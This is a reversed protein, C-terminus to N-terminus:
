PRNWLLAHKSLVGAEWVRIVLLPLLKGERTKAQLLYAEVKDVQSCNEEEAKCEQPSYEVSAVQGNQKPKTLDITKDIASVVLQVKGNENSRINVMQIKSTQDPILIQYTGVIEKLNLDNNKSQAFVLSTALLGFLILSKM